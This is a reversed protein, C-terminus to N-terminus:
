PPLLTAALRQASRSRWVDIGGALLARATPVADEASDLVVVPIVAASGIRKLVDM